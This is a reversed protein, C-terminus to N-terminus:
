EVEEDELQNMFVTIQDIMQQCGLKNMTIEPVAMSFSIRQKDTAGIRYFVKAPEEKPPEVAPMPPVLKPVPLKVVNNMDDMIKNMDEAVSGESKKYSRFWNFMNKDWTIDMNLWRGFSPIAFPLMLVLIWVPAMFTTYESYQSLSLSIGTTLYVVGTWFLYYGSSRGFLTM